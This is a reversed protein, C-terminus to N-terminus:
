KRSLAYLFIGFATCSLFTRVGHQKNWRRIHNKVWTEGATQMVDEELNKKIDSMMVAMTWPWVSLFVGSGVLWLLRTDSDEDLYYVCAGTLSGTFALAGQVNKARLFNEKWNKRCNQLDFTEGAPSSVTNVYLACGAFLGTLGTTGIKLFDKLDM